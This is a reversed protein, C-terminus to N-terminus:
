KKYQTIVAFSFVGGLLLAAIKHILHVFAPAPREFSLFAGSLFLTLICFGGSALLGIILPPFTYEKAFQFISVLTYLSFALASLKHLNFLIANVPKGYKSLWIGAIISVCFLGGSILIKSFLNDM